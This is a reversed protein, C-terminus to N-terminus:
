VYDSLNGMLDPDDNRKLESWAEKWFMSYVASRKRQPVKKDFNKPSLARRAQKRFKRKALRQEEASLGSLADDIQSQKSPVARYDSETPIVLGREIYKMKVKMIVISRQMEYDTDDAWIIEM